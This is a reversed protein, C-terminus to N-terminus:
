RGHLHARLADLCRVLVPLSIMLCVVGSFLLAPLLGFRSGLFSGVLSGVSFAGFSVTRMTARMRRQLWVRNISSSLLPLGFILSWRSRYPWFAGTKGQADVHAENASRAAEAEQLLERRRLQALQENLHPNMM